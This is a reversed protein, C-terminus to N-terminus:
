PATPLAWSLWIISLASQAGRVSWGASGGAVGRKGRRPPPALKPMGAGRRAEPRGAAAGRGQNMGGEGGPDGPARMRALFRVQGGGTGCRLPAVGARGGLLAHALRAGGPRGGLDVRFGLGAAVCRGFRLRRCLRGGRRGYGALLVLRPRLGAVVAVAVVL